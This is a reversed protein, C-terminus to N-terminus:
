IGESYSAPPCASAASSSSSSSHSSINFFYTENIFLSFHLECQPKPNVVVAPETAGTVSDTADSIKPIIRRIGPENRDHNVEVPHAHAEVRFIPGWFPGLDVVADALALPDPHSKCDRKKEGKEFKYRENSALCHGSSERM